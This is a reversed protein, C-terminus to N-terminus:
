LWNLTGPVAITFTTMAFFPLTVFASTVPLNAPVGVPAHTSDATFVALKGGESPNEVGYGNWSLYRTGVVAVSSAATNAASSRVNPADPSFRIMGSRAGANSAAHAGTEFSVSPPRSGPPRAAAITPDPPGANKSRKAPALRSARSPAGCGSSRKVRLM